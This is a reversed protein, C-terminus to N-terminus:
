QKKRLCCIATANDHAGSLLIQRMARNLIQRPNSEESTLFEHLLDPTLDNYFGDSCLFFSDEKGLAWSDIRAHSARRTGITRTLVHFDVNQGKERLWAYEPDKGVTHDTSLQELKKGTIRYLRSDGANLMAAYRETLLLVILTSSMPSPSRDAFNCNYIRRNIKEIADSLFKRGSEETELLSDPTTLFVKGLECCCIYSAIEGHRNGGVGDAVVALASRRHAPASILFNDENHRRVLGIISEGAIRFGAQNEM